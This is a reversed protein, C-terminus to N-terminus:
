GHAGGQFALSAIIVAREPELGFRNVLFQAQVSHLSLSNESGNLSALLVTEPGAECARTLAPNRKKFTM